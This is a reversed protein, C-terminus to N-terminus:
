TVVKLKGSGEEKGNTNSSCATLAFVFICIVSLLINKLKM